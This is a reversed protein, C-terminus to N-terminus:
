QKTEEEPELEFQVGSINSSPIFHVINHSDVVEVGACGYLMEVWTMAKLPSNRAIRLAAGLNSLPEYSDRLRLFKVAKM